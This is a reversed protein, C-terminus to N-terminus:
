NVEKQMFLQLSSKKFLYTVLVILLAVLMLYVNYLWWPESAEFNEQAYTINYIIPFVFVVFTFKFSKILFMVHYLHLLSIIIIFGYDTAVSRSKPFMYMYFAGSSLVYYIGNYNRWKPWRKMILSEIIMSTDLIVVSSIGSLLYDTSIEGRLLQIFGSIFIGHVSLVLLAAM